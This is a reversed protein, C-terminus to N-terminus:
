FIDLIELIYGNCLPCNGRSVWLERSCLRCFTHGCPIFAAGKHRVMCVCCVYEGVGQGKVKKEEEKVEEEEEEEADEEQDDDETTLYKSGVVGAQRDTEELLDLLSMTMPPPQPQSLLNGKENENGKRGENGNEEEGDDDEGRPLIVVADEEETDGEEEETDGEEEIEEEQREQERTNRGSVSINRRFSMSSNTRQFRGNSSSSLLSSSSSSFSVDSVPVPQPSSLSLSSAYSSSSSSPKTSASFSRPLRLRDKLSKRSKTNSYHDVLDKYASTGSEEDAIIDLLTRSRSTGLTRKEQQENGRVGQHHRSDFISM